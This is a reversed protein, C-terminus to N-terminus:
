QLLNQRMLVGRPDTGGVKEAVETGRWAPKSKKPLRVAATLAIRRDIRYRGYKSTPSDADVTSISRSLNVPRNFLLQGISSVQPIRGYANLALIRQDGVSGCSSARTESVRIESDKKRQNPFGSKIM